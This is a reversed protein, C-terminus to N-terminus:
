KGASNRSGPKTTATRSEMRRVARLIAARMWRALPMEAREAAQEAAKKEAHTMRLEYRAELAEGSPLKPRGRKAM